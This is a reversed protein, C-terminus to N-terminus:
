EIDKNRRSTLYKQLGVAVCGTCVIVTGVISTWYIPQDLFVAQYFFAIVIDFTRLLSVLGAEELKLSLVLTAQALSGCLGNVLVMLWAFTSQPLATPKGTCFSFINITISGAFVCFISFFAIVANTPTRKLKRISIYTYALFVCTLVSLIVGTIRDEVSFVDVISDEPFLFSPRAILFVGIMTVIVSVIQFVGCPEKLVVCAVILTVVPASFVIASSDTLSIYDLAYYSLVFCLYGFIARELLNIREGEVGHLPEKFYLTIPLFFIVQVLSRATVFFAPDVGGSIEVTLSATAFFFGSLFAMVCGICPIKRLKNMIVSRIDDEPDTIKDLEHHPLGNCAVESDIPTLAM